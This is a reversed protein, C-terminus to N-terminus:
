FAYCPKAAGGPQQPKRGNRLTFTATVSRVYHKAANQIKPLLMVYCLM